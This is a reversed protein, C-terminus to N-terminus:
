GADTSKYMGDGDGGAVSDGSGAYVTNPDSPAVQIAGVGDVGKISDFIPFWSVGASTTKWAGGEPTGIYFVGPQGIVGTVSAVRGGHFPGINRWKLGSYLDPSVQSGPGDQPAAASTHLPFASALALSFLALPWAVRRIFSPM